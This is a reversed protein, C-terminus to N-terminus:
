EGNEKEAEDARELIARALLRAQAPCVGLYLPGYWEIDKEGKTYVSVVGPIGDQCGGVEVCVGEADDFVRRIIEVSYSM